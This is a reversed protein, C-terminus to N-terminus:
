VARQGSLSYESFYLHQGLLSTRTMAFGFPALYEDLEDPAIRSTKPPGPPGDMKQFELIVFVGDPKLVRKIEALTTRHGGGHVLDHFVTASFCIDAWEDEVPLYQAADATKPEINTINRSKIERALLEIGEDWLDLAIIRGDPAISPAIALSYNGRGCGIDVLRHGNKLALLELLKGTDILDFSSKGAGRPQGTM